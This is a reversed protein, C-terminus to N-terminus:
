RSETGTFEPMTAHGAASTGERGLVKLVTLFLVKMDLWFSCHDVYWVDLAFKEPWTLANRGRVQAWGTIGPRVDHRRRQEPTYRELYQMLLPRPGVLSMDGRLVNWLQPLEDLSASRLFRGLVTMRDADPLLNGQEDRANTLTRFKVISFARGHLGPRQQRFFVPSGLRLRVLLATLILLPALLVLATASVAVDLLRKGFRRYFSPRIRM